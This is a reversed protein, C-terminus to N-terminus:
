EHQRRSDPFSRRRDIHDLRSGTRGHPGLRAFGECRDRGGSVSRFCAHDLDTGPVDIDFTDPNQAFFCTFPGSALSVLSEIALNYSAQPTVTTRLQLSVSAGAPMVTGPPFSVLVLTRGSGDGVPQQTLVARPLDPDSNTLSWGTITLGAPVLMAGKLDVGASNRMTFQNYMSVENRAAAYSASLYQDLRPPLVPVTDVVFRAIATAHLPGPASQADLTVTNTVRDDVNVVAGDRDVSNVTGNIRASLSIDNQSTAGISRIEIRSVQDSAALGGGGSPLSAARFNVTINGSSAAALRLTANDRSAFWMESSRPGAAVSVSADTVNVQPPLDDVYTASTWDATGNNRGDISYSVPEGFTAAYSSAGYSYRPAYVSKSVYGGVQPAALTITADATALLAIPDPGVHHGYLSATNLKTAGISNSPNSSPYRVAIDAYACSSYSLDDLAVRIVGPSVETGSSIEPVFVAGPPLTDIVYNDVYALRGLYSPQPSCAFIRYRSIGDLAGGSILSKTLSVTSSANATVTTTGSTVTAANSGRITAQNTVTTGDPTFFRPLIADVIIQGTRGAPLPDIMTFRATGNATHQRQSPQGPPWQRDRDFTQLAVDTPNSVATIILEPPFSDVLQVNRCPTSTSVCTYSLVYRIQEGSLVTASTGQVSPTGTFITQEIQLGVTDASAPPATVLSGGFLTVVVLVLVLSRRRLLDLFSSVV